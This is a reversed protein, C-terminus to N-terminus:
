DQPVTQDLPFPQDLFVVGVGKTNDHEMLLEAAAKAERFSEYPGYCHTAPLVLESKFMSMNSGKVTTQLRCALVIYM